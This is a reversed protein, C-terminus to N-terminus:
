LAIMHEWLGEKEGRKEERRMGMEQLKDVNYYILSIIIYATDSIVYSVLGMEGHGSHEAM